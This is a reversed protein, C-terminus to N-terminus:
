ICSIAFVFYSVKPDMNPPRSQRAEFAAGHPLVGLCKDSAKKLCQTLAVSSSARLNPDPTSSITQFM